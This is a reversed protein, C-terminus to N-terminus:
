LISFIKSKFPSSFSSSFLILNAAFAISAGAPIALFNVIAKPLDKMEFYINM